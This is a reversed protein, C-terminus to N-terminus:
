IPDSECWFAASEEAIDIGVGFASEAVGGIVFLNLLIEDLEGRLVIKSVIIFLQCHPHLRRIAMRFLLVLDVAVIM